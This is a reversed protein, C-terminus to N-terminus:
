GRCNKYSRNKAQSALSTMADKISGSLIASRYKWSLFTCPYSSSLMTSGWNKIQSATMPYGNNGRSINLGIVLALGKNKAASVHKSLYSSPSGKWSVYQAWAADLYRYTGSWKAMYTPEARVVTAMGPWLQKSYQAMAEVTGGSVTQGNWNTPDNPEDILYHGVITGDNIYSSFNVGKYRNVREKWKTMSFHGAADKWYRQAGALDLMVRGGRAKIAALNSMLYSPSIIRMAGNYTSFVEIPQDFTGFAIGSTSAASLSVTTPVVEAAAQEEGTPTDIGTPTEVAPSQDFSDTSNCAASLMLAALLPARHRAMRRSLKFSHTMRM